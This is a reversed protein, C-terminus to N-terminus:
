GESLDGRKLWGSGRCPRCSQKEFTGSGKCRHCPYVQGFVIPGTKIPFGRPRSVDPPPNLPEDRGRGAM